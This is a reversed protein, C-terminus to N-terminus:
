QTIEAVRIGPRQDVTSIVLLTLMCKVTLIDSMELLHVSVETVVAVYVFMCVFHGMVCVCVMEKDVIIAIYSLKHYIWINILSWEELVQFLM